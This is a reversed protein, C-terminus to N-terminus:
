IERGANSDTMPSLLLPSAMMPDKCNQGTKDRGDKNNVSVFYIGPFWIPMGKIYIVNQGKNVGEKITHVLRGTVDSIRITVIGDEPSSYLLSFEDGAVPNPVIKFLETQPQTETKIIM